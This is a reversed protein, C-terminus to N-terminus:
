LQEDDEKLLETSLREFAERDKKYQMEVDHNVEVRRNLVMM